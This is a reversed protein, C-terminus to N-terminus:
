ARRTPAAMWVVQGLFPRHSERNKGSLGQYGFFDSGGSRVRNCLVM